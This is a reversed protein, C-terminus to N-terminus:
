AAALETALVYYSRGDAMTLTQFEGSTTTTEVRQGSIYVKGNRDKKISIHGVHQKPMRPLRYIPVLKAAM